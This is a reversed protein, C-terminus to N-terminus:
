RPQNELESNHQFLNALAELQDKSIRYYRQPGRGAITRTFLQIDFGMKTLGSCVEVLSVPYEGTLDTWAKRLPVSNSDDTFHNRNVKRKNPRNIGLHTALWRNKQRAGVEHYGFILSLEKTSLGAKLSQIYLAILDLSDRKFHWVLGEIEPPRSVNPIYYNIAQATMGEVPGIHLPRYGLQYLYRVRDGRDLDALSEAREPLTPWYEDPTLTQLQHITDIEPISTM